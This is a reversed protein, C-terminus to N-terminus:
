LKLYKNALGFDSKFYMINFSFHTTFTFNDSLLNKKRKIYNLIFARSCYIKGTLFINDVGM